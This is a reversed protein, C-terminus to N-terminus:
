YDKQLSVSQEGEEEDDNGRRRDHSRKRRSIGSGFFRDKILIHPRVKVDMAERIGDGFLGFSLVILLVILSPLLAEWPYAFASVNITAVMNGLEPTDAPIGVQLFGLSSVSILATGIDMSAYVLVAPLINPLIGKRMIYSFSSNLTKSVAMYDESKISLVGGRILRAYPPWWVFTLSIAVNFLSPPRLTAAITLAMLITPFALFLDSIRMIAEDVLGGIYGATMGLVLGIIASLVVVSLSISLDVPLAALVRSFIDRGAFDTGFPHAFSPFANTDLLNQSAPNYPAIAGRTVYFLFALVLFSLATITGFSSLKNSFAITRFRLLSERLKFSNFLSM